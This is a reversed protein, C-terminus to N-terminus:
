PCTSRAEALLAPSSATTSGRRTWGSGTWPSRGSPTRPWRTSSCGSPTRRWRSMPAASSMVPTSWFGTPATSAVLMAPLERSRGAAVDHVSLRGTSKDEVVVNDGHHAVPRASTVDVERMTRTALDYVFVGHPPDSSDSQTYGVVTDGSVSAFRLLSGAPGTFSHTEGTSVQYAVATGPGDVARSVVWDDGAVVDETGMQVPLATFAWGPVASAAPAAVVLTAFSLALVACAAVVSATRRRVSSVM